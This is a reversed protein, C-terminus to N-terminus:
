GEFKITRLKSWKIKSLYTDLDFNKVNDDLSKFDFFDTPDIKKVTYPCRPRVSRMTAVWQATTYLSVFRSTTEIAAHIFNNENETHGKEFYKYEISSLNFNSLAYWLMTIYYRCNDSYFVFSKKGSESMPKLFHLVCSAIESSGRCATAENWVYCYGDSTGM